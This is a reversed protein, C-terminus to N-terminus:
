GEWSKLNAVYQVTVGARDGGDQFDGALVARVVGAFVGDEPSGLPHEGGFIQFLEQNQEAKIMKPHKHANPNQDRLHNYELM